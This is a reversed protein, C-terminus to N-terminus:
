SKGDSYCLLLMTSSLALGVVVTRLLYAIFEMM